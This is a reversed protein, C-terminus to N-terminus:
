CRSGKRRWEERKLRPLLWRAWLVGDIFRQDLMARHAACTEPPKCTCHHAIATTLAVAQAATGHWVSAVTGM